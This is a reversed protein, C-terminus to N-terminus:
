ARRPARLWASAMALLAVGLAAAYPLWAVAPHGALSWRTVALAALAVGVASKAERARPRSSALGVLLPAALAVTLIGYFGKLADVVSPLVVALLVGALGCAGAAWRAVRLVQRDSAERRWCSKYVDQSLSTALMFLVADATSIEAAFLAALWAGSRGRM